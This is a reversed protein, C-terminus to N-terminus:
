NTRKKDAQREDTISVNRQLLTERGPNRPFHKPLGVLFRLIFIYLNQFIAFFELYGGLCQPFKQGAILLIPYDTHALLHTKTNHGTFM